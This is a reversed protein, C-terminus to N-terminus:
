KSEETPTAVCALTVNGGDVKQCIIEYQPPQSKTLPRHWLVLSVSVAAVIFLFEFVWIRILEGM